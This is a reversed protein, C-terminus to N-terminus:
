EKEYILGYLLLSLAILGTLQRVLMLDTAPFVLKDVILLLNNLSMWCFCMGSWFLLRHGSAKYRFLLLCACALSTLMCLLYIAAPM